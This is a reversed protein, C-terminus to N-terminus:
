WSCKVPGTGRGLGDYVGPRRGGAKMLGGFELDEGVVDYAGMTDWWEKFSGWDGV